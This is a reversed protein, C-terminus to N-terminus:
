TPHYIHIAGESPITTENMLKYGSSPPHLNKLFPLACRWCLVAVHTHGNSAYGTDLHSTSLSNLKVHVLAVVKIYGLSVYSNASVCMKHQFYNLRRQTTHINEASTAFIDTRM